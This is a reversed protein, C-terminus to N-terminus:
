RLISAAQEPPTPNIYAGTALEFGAFTTLRPLIEIHWHFDREDQHPLTHIVINYPPYDFLDEYRNIIYKLLSSLSIIDDSDIKNFAKKHEKPLIWSEYAFRSAFPCIVIFRDNEAVVRTKETLEDNVIDCYPCTGKGNKYKEVGQLEREVAEPIFTVAMIQWHGHELSAGGNAGFNKFMQVYKINKDKVIEDYRLILAKIINQIEDIEMQGLTKDHHNSEVIIEAVGYGDNAKHLENQLENDGEVMSSNTDKSFAAFKNNFGRLKWTGKEDCFEVLTPPTMNENGPCFPCPGNSKVVDAKKFDHPRKGRETSIVAIKGTVVDYRIESM